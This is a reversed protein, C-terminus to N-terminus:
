GALGVDHPCTQRHHLLALCEEARFVAGARGGLGKGDGGVWCTKHATMIEFAGKM